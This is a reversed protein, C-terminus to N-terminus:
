DRYALVIRDKDREVVRVPFSLQLAEVFAATEGTRFAGSIRIRRLRDDQLVVPRQVYRNLEATADALSEDEFIILGERWSIDKEIGPDRSVQARDASARLVEGAQLMTPTQAPASANAVSVSGELLSITVRRDAAIRVDFETGHATVVRDLARVIFPRAQGKAVRFLAQGQELILRRETSTYAVKLQSATNLTASSGDPLAVTLRQGIGTRYVTSAVVASHHSSAVVPYSPGAPQGLDRLTWSGALALFSAAIAGAIAISHGRRSKPTAIRSLAEHRLALMENSSAAAQAQLHIAEIEAYALQHAPNASRWEELRGREEDSLAGSSSRDFWGAAQELIPLDSNELSAHGM